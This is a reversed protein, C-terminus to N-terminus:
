AFIENGSGGGVMALQLEGLETFAADKATVETRRALEVEDKTIDM